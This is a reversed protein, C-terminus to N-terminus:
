DLVLGGNVRKRKSSCESNRPEACHPNGIVLVENQAIHVRNARRHQVLRAESHVAPLRVTHTRHVARRQRAKSKRTYYRVIWHCLTWRRNPNIAQAFEAISNLTRLRPKIRSPLVGVCQTPDFALM